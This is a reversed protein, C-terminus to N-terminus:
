SCGCCTSGCNCYPNQVVYAPVPSMKLESLLYQNQAQQSASLQLASIQQNQEAIRQNLAEVKNAQIADLIARTGANQSDIIDRTNNSNNYNTQCFGTNVASTIGNVQTALNYNLNSINQNVGNVLQAQTYFGDCLGNAIGNSQQALRDTASDIQRQLTAFDSALVYNEQAGAGNNGWGGNGWGLFVFLFLIIIWWAGGDGGFAGNNGNLLAVDSATLGDTM